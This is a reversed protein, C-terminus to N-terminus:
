DSFDKIKLVLDNNYLEIKNNSNQIYFKLIYKDYYYDYFMRSIILLILNLFFLISNINTLIFPIKKYIISINKPISNAFILLQFFPEEITYDLFVFDMKEVFKIGTLVYNSYGKNNMNPHTRLHLVQYERFYTEQIRTDVALKNEM